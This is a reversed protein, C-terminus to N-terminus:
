ILGKLNQLGKFVIRLVYHGDNRAVDDTLVVGIFGM